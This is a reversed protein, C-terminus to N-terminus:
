DGKGRARMRYVRVLLSTSNGLVLGTGTLLMVMAVQVPRDTIFLILPYLVLILFWAGQVGIDGRTKILGPVWILRCTLSGGIGVLRGAQFPVFWVLSPFRVNLRGPYILRSTMPILNSLIPSLPSIKKAKRYALVMILVSFLFLVIGLISAIKFFIVFITSAFSASGKM